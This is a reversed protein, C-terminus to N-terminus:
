GNVFLSCLRAYRCTLTRWSTEAWVAHQQNMTHWHRMRWGWSLSFGRRGMRYVSVFRKSALLCHESSSTFCASGVCKASRLLAIAQSVAEPIYSVLSQELSQRKAEVLFLRGKSIDFADERSGGPALLRDSFAMFSIASRPCIIIQSVRTTGWMKTSLLRMTSMAVWGCNTGLFPILSRSAM